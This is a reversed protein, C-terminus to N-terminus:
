QRNKQKRAEQAKLPLCKHWGQTGRKREREDESCSLSLTHPEWSAMGRGTTGKLLVSRQCSPFPTGSLIESKCFSPFWGGSSPLFRQIARLTLLSILELLRRHFKQCPTELLEPSAQSGGLSECLNDGFMLPKRTGCPHPPPSGRVTAFAVKPCAVETNEEQKNVALHKGKKEKGLTELSVGLGSEGCFKTEFGGALSGSFSYLFLLLIRFIPM